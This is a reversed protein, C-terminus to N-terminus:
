KVRRAGWWAELTRRHCRRGSKCGTNPCRFRVDRGEASAASTLRELTLQVDGGTLLRTETDLVVGLPLRMDCARVTDAMTSGRTSSRACTEEGIRMM